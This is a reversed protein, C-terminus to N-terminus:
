IDLELLIYKGKKGESTFRVYEWLISNERAQRSFIQEM